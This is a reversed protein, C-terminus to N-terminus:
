TREEFTVEGNKGIHALVTRVEVGSHVALIKEKADNMAKFHTETEDEDSDFAERGGYAGCDTHNMLVIKSVDHLRKSLEIQALPVTMDKTAGAHSIIDCDGLHGEKELWEKVPPGLRFDICHLVAGTCTHAM